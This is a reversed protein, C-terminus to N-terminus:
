KQVLHQNGTARARTNTFIDGQSRLTCSQPCYSDGNVVVIRAARGLGSQQLWFLQHHGATRDESRAMPPPHLPAESLEKLGKVAPNGPQHLQASQVDVQLYRPHESMTPRAAPWWVGGYSRGSSRRHGAAQNTPLSV